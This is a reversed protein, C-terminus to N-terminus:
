PANSLLVSPYCLNQDLVAAVCHSLLYAVVTAESYSPQSGAIKKQPTQMNQM